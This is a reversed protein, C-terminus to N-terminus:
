AAVFPAISVRTFCKAAESPGRPMRTLATAGPTTSVSMDLKTLVSAPRVDAIFMCASGRIARASSIPGTTAKRADPSARQIVPSVTRTSPPEFSQPVHTHCLRCGFLVFRQHQLGEVGQEVLTIILHGGPEPRIGVDLVACVDFRTAISQEIQDAACGASQTIFM